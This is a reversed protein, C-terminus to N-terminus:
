YTLRLALQILRPTNLQTSIIGFTNGAVTTAVLNPNGFQVRNFLNFAEARFELNFRETISTKKYISANWNNIGHGRLVPDTRGESGLTFGAPVSYCDTNFARNLRQQIPGSIVPNCGATVNPRLGTNFGTLNPTATLGLPFGDQFTTGGNVGWGSVVKDAVGKVGPLLKKGKGVPLDYVYNFTLRSRSDFSSIARENKMNYWDQVGAVGTPSDLWTTLTEVNSIIKSFTYSALLTGGGSFRKEVKAQLAHYTSNGMYNSPDVGSTYQPFPLLTQGLPIKQKTLTGNSVLGYFPNDVQTQTLQSGL